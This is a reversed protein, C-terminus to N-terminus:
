KLDSLKHILEDHIMANSAILLSKDFSYEENEGSSIRGGAERVLIIGAALDWAHLDKAWLGDIRGNSLFALALAASGIRLVGRTIDNVRGFVEYEKNRLYSPASSFAAIYLGDNFKEKKSVKIEIGNLYAGNGKSAYYMEDSFPNFIVGAMVDDDEQFAVSIACLPIGQAYNVTGDLPDIHWVKSADRQELMSEEAAISHDPFTKQIIDKINKESLIDVETVLDRINKNKVRFGHINQYYDRLIFGSTKAAKIAVEVYDERM